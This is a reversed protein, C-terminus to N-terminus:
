NFDINTPQIRQTRDKTGLQGFDNSGFSFILHSPASIQQKEFSNIIIEVLSNKTVGQQVQILSHSYNTDFDLIFQDFQVQTPQYLKAAYHEPGLGLQGFNNNGWCYLKGSKTLVMSHNYIAKLKKIEMNHFFYNTQIPNNQNQYIGSGLQGFKNDGWSVMTNGVFGIVHDSGVSIIEFNKKLPINTM